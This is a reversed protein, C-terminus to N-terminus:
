IDKLKEELLNEILETDVPRVKRRICEQCHPKTITITEKDLVMTKGCRNCECLKGLALKIPLRNYCGPKVCVFEYYPKFKDPNNKQKWKPVLDIKKYLHIHNPKKM